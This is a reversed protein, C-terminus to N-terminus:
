SCINRAVRQDSWNPTDTSLSNTPAFMTYSSVSNVPWPNGNHTIPDFSYSTNTLATTYSGYQFCNNPGYTGTCSGDYPVKVVYGHYKSSGIYQQGAWYINDGKVKLCRLHDTHNNEMDRLYRTWQWTGATSIKSWLPVNGYVDVSGGVVIYAEDDSLDMAYLNVNNGVGSPHDLLKQWQLVGSSNYKVVWGLTHYTRTSGCLYVNGSSDVVMDNFTHLHYSGNSGIKNNWQLQNSSNFKCVWGWSNYQSSGGVRGALYYNGSSDFTGCNHTAGYNSGSGSGYTSLEWDNVFSGSSNVEWFKLDKNGTSAGVEVGIIRNSSSVMLTQLRKFNNANGSAYNKEWSKVGSSSVATMGGTTYSCNIGLIFNGNSLVGLGKATQAQPSYQYRKYFTNNGKADYKNLGVHTYYQPSTNNDVLDGYVYTNGSGDVHLYRWDINDSTDMSGDSVIWYEEGGPSVGLLMQQVAM